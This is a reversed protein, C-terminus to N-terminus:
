TTTEEIPPQIDEETEAAGYAAIRFGPERAAASYNNSSVLDDSFDLVKKQGTENLQQCNSLIKEQTPTLPIFISTTLKTQEETNIDDFFSAPSVEFLKALMQITTRKLNQTIGCEWKQVAARQVGIKAGLEEQTMGKSIRLQKIYDGVHM